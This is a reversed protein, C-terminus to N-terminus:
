LSAYFNSTVPTFGHAKIYRSILPLHYASGDPSMEPALANVLYVLSFLAILLIPGFGRFPDPSSREGPLRFRRGWWVIALALLALAVFVPKYALGIACLFFVIQSFCASGIVYALSLYEASDTEIRLRRFLIIGLCLSTIGSLLTGFLVGTVQLM